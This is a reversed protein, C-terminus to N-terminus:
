PNYQMRSYGVLKISSPLGPYVFIPEYTSDVTATYFYRIYDGAGVCVSNCSISVGGACECEQATDVNVTQGNAKAKNYFDSTEVIATMVDADAGGQAVYQVVTRSLDQLKMKENIFTGYDVVGLVLIVLVPVIMAFEVAAAGEENSRFFCYM